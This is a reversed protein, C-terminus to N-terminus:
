WWVESEWKINENREKRQKIEIGCKRGEFINKAKRVM